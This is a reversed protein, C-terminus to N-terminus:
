QSGSTGRTVSLSTLRQFYENFHNQLGAIHQDILTKPGNHRAESPTMAFRSRFARLFQGSSSFGFAFAIETIPRPRQSSQMLARYSADLRRDRIVTTVGGDATFMRYLHARSIRFRRLLLNPSLAPEALNDDIFQLLRQRLVRSINTDGIGVDRNYNNLINALLSVMADEATAAEESTIGAAMTALSTIFEGLLRTTPHEAKLVLGHLNSGGNVKDLRSRPLLVSITAGGDSTAALRRALDLVVIDGPRVAVSRGEFNGHLDGAIYLRLLYQDLGGQLIHHRERRLNQRAFSTPGILMTGVTQSRISGELISERGAAPHLTVDYFPQNIARWIESRLCPEVMDTSLFIQEHM